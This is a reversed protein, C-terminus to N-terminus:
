RQLVFQVNQELNVAVAVGDLQAPECRARRAAELVTGNLHPLPATVACNQVTGDALVDCRFGLTGEVGAEKAEPTYDFQWNCRPRVMGPSLQLVGLTEADGRQGATVPDDGPSRLNDGARQAIGTWEGTTEPTQKELQAPQAISASKQAVPSPRPKRTQKTQLRQSPTLDDSMTKVSQDTNGLSPSPARGFARFVVEPGWAAQKLVTKQPPLGLFALVLAAHLAVSVLVSRGFSRPAQQPRQFLSKFVTYTNHPFDRRPILNRIPQHDSSRTSEAYRASKENTAKIFSAPGSM